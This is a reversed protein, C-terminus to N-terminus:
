RGPEVNLCQVARRACRTGISLCYLLVLLFLVLLLSFSTFFLFSFFASIDFSHVGRKREREGARDLHPAWTLSAAAQGTSLWCGSSHFCFFLLFFFRAIWRYVCRFFFFFLFFFLLYCIFIHLTCVKGMTMYSVALRVTFSTIWIVDTSISFLLIPRLLFHLSVTCVCCVFRLLFARQIPHVAISDATETQDANSTVTQRAVPHSAVTRRWAHVKAANHSDTENTRNADFQQQRKASEHKAPKNRQKMEREDEGCKREHGAWKRVQTGHWM